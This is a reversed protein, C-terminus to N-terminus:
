ARKGELVHLGQRRVATALTRHGAREALLVRETPVARQWWEGAAADATARLEVLATTLRRPPPPAPRPAGAGLCGVRLVRRVVWFVWGGGGGV